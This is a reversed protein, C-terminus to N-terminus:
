RNARQERVRGLWENFDEAREEIHRRVDESQGWLEYYGRLSTERKREFPEGLRNTALARIVAEDATRECRFDELLDSRLVVGVLNDSYKPVGLVTCREAGQGWFANAFADKKGPTRREM